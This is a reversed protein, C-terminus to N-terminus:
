RNFAAQQFENILTQQEAPSLAAEPHLVLYQRPPMEGSQVIEAIEDGGDAHGRHEGGGLGWTSFNLHERGAMVDYTIL